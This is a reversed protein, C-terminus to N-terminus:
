LFLWQHVAKTCRPFLLSSGKYCTVTASPAVCAKALAMTAGVPLPKV